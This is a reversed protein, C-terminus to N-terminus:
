FFINHFDPSFMNNEWCSHPFTSSIIYKGGMEVLNEKLFPHTIKRLFDFLLTHSLQNNKYLKRRIGEVSFPIMEEAKKLTSKV